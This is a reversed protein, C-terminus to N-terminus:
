RVEESSNERFERTYIDLLAFFLSLVLPGLVFGIPGFLEIGGIVSILIIFAHIHIGREILKPRLVNDILGM